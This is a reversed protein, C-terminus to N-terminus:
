TAAEIHPMRTNSPFAGAAPCPAFGNEMGAWKSLPDRGQGLRGELYRALVSDGAGAAAAAVQTDLPCDAQRAHNATDAVASVATRAPRPEDRGLVDPGSASGTATERSLLSKKAQDAHIATEQRISKRRRGSGGGCRPRGHLPQM